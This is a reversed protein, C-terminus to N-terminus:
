KIKLNHQIAQRLLSDRAPESLMVDVPVAEGNATKIFNAPKADTLLVGAKPHWWTRDKM